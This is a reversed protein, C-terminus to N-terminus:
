RESQEAISISTGRGGTAVGSMRDKKHDRRVGGCEEKRRLRDMQNAMPANRRGKRGGAGRNNWLKPCGCVKEGGRRSERKGAGFHGENKWWM